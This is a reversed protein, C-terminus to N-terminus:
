RPAEGPPPGEGARSDGDARCASGNGPKAPSPPAYRRIPHPGSSRHSNAVPPLRIAHGGGGVQLPLSRVGWGARRAVKGLLAAVPHVCTKAPEKSTSSRAALLTGAGVRTASARARACARTPAPCPPPDRRCQSDGRGALRIPMARGGEENRGWLPPPPARRRGKNMGPRSTRMGYLLAPSLELRGGAARPVHSLRLGRPSPSPRRGGPSPSGAHGEDMTSGAPPGVITLNLLGQTGFRSLIPSAAM